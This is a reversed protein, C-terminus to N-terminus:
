NTSDNQSLRSKKILEQENENDAHCASASFIWGIGVAINNGLWWPRSQWQCPRFDEVIGGRRIRSTFM